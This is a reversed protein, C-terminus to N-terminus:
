RSLTESHLLPKVKKLVAFNRYLKNRVNETQAKWSLESDILIGLFKAVYVREFKCENIYVNCCINLHKKGFFLFNTKSINLSLKNISFWNFKILELSVQKDLINDATCSINNDDAFIIM